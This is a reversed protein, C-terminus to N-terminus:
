WRGTYLREEELQKRTMAEVHSDAFLVNARNNHRLYEGSLDPNIWQYWNVFTDGNGDTVSEYGDMAFIVESSRRIRNYRRGEWFDDNGPLDDRKNFLAIETLSGFKSMRWGKSRIGLNDGGYCNLTYSTYIAGEEFTKQTVSNKEGRTAELCNFVEKPLGGPVAYAVGWYAKNWIRPDIIQTQDVPDEWATSNSWCSLYLNNQNIYMHVAAGIQRLNSACQVARAQRRAKNLSPLLLSILVAIIGVVVLLEVLTFGRRRFSQAAKM